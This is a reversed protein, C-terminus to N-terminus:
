VLLGLQSMGFIFGFVTVLSAVTSLFVLQGALEGDGCVLMASDGAGVSGTPPNLYLWNAASILIDPNM